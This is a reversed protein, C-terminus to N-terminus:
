RAMEVVQPAPISDQQMEVDYRDKLSQGINELATGLTILLRGHLPTHSTTNPRATSSLAERAAEQQLQQQRMQSYAASEHYNM